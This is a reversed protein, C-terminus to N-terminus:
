TYRPSVEREHQEALVDGQVTANESVTDAANAWTAPDEGTPPTPAPTVTESPVPMDTPTGGCGAVALLIAVLLLRVEM